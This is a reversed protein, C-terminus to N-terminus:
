NDAWLTNIREILETIEKVFSEIDKDAVIGDPIDLFIGNIIGKALITNKKVEKLAIIIKKFEEIVEKKDM